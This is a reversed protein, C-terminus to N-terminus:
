RDRHLPWSCRAAAASGPAEEAGGPVGMCAEERGGPEQRSAIIREGAMGRQPTPEQGDGVRGSRSAGALGVPGKGSRFVASM